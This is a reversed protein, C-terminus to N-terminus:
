FGNELKTGFVPQQQHLLQVVDNEGEGGGDENYEDEEGACVCVCM